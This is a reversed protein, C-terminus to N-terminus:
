FELDAYAPVGSHATDLRRPRSSEISAWFRTCHTHNSADNYVICGVLWVRAIERIGRGPITRSSTASFPASFRSGPFVVEGSDLKRDVGSECSLAWVNDPRTTTNDTPWPIDVSMLSRAGFAPSAGYNHIVFVSDITIEAAVTDRRNPNPTWVRFKPEATLVVQSGLGLWPRQGSQMVSLQSKSAVALSQASVAQALAAKAMDKLSGAQDSLKQAQDRGALAGILAARNQIRMQNYIQSSTTTSSDIAERTLALQRLTLLASIIVGAALVVNCM